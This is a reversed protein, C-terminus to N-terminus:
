HISDRLPILIERSWAASLPIEQCDSDAHDLVVKREQQNTRTTSTAQTAAPGDAKVRIRGQVHHCARGEM